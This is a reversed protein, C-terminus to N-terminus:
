HPRIPLQCMWEAGSQMIQASMSHPWCGQLPQNNPRALFFTMLFLNKRVIQPEAERAETSKMRLLYLTRSKPSQAYRVVPSLNSFAGTITTQFGSRSPTIFLTMRVAKCATRRLVGSEIQYESTLTSYQAQFYSHVRFAKVSVWNVLCPLSM